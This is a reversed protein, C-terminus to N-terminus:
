DSCFLGRLYNMCEDNNYKEDYKTKLSIFRLASCFLMMALNSFILGSIGGDFGYRAISIMLIILGASVSSFMLIGALKPKLMDIVGVNLLGSIGSFAGAVVFYLLFKPYSLYQVGILTRFIIDSILM